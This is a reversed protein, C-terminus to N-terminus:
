AEAAVAGPMGVKGVELEEFWDLFRHVDDGQFIRGHQPALTDIELERVRGIWDNKAENSPMWRRHFYEMHACHADFDEVFLPTEPGELAAGVDGTWLIKAKADYVHYNGSSHLYHAPVFRLETTGLHLTSGGDPIPVYEVHDMGFHRLFGEWLWPGHVRAHPIAQDWLGMSSIIDPDQHSAFLDTIQDIEIHHLIAGLMSSFVEVGGPDIVIARGDSIVMYQNTDIIQEPRDPDRGFVVWRHDGDWLTLSKM